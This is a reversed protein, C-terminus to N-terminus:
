LTQHLGRALAEREHDNPAIFQYRLLFDIIALNCNFKFELTNRVIAAVKEVPWLYFEAVEGDQNVPKFKSPLELDFCFMRDQRLGDRTEMVYSIESVALAQRSLEEPISAEEACEKVMNEFPSIGVPLGGAVMNDLMGPCLVQGGGRRGIWMQIAGDADRKYGNVHVGYARIGFPPVAGRDIAFLPAHEYSTAVPYLEDRLGPIHGAMSLEGVLDAVAASRCYYTDLCERLRLGAGVAEFVDDRDVLIEALAHGVHGIIKDAVSLPRFGALDHRNCIEIHDLYAMAPKIATAVGNFLESGNHKFDPPAFRGPM